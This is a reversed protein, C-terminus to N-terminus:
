GSVKVSIKYTAGCDVPNPQVSVQSFVPVDTDLTVHRTISTSKGVADTAVITITNEGETLTVTTRFSGDADVSVTEGNVTLVVPSSTVDNTTGAVECAAQNTYTGEDPATVVLTPPVTDVKFSISVAESTNGDNDSVQATVTHSGDSLGSASTYSLEYGNAISKVQCDESGIAAGTDIKMWFSSLDIGSGSDTMRVKIVPSNNTLGAGSTPELFVVQPKVTEKVRLKLANGFETDAADVTTKNGAQDAATISIPYVHDTLGWSTTTPATISAEYAGTASNYHLVYEMGNITAKVSAIAM